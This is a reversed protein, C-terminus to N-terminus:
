YMLFTSDKNVIDIFEAREDRNMVFNENELFDLDKKIRIEKKEKTKKAKKEDGGEDGGEDDGEDDGEDGGEDGGEDVDSEETNKIKKMEILPDSLQKKNSM